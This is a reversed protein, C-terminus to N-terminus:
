EVSVPTTTKAIINAKKAKVFTHKFASTNNIITQIVPKVVDSTLGSRVGSITFNRDKGESDEFTISINRTTTAM